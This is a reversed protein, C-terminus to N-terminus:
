PSGESKVVKAVALLKSSVKLSAASIAQPNADIKLHGAILNFNIMGGIQSFGEAEGVTLVPRNRLAELVARARDKESKPLFLIHCQDQGEANKLRRIVFGRGNVSQTSLADELISGFPDEGLVAVVFPASPSSFAADPWEIFKAFNFLYGAKVKYELAVASDAAHALGKGGIWAGFVLATLVGFRIWRSAESLRWAPYQKPFVQM